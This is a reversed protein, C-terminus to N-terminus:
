EVEIKRRTCIDKISTVRCELVLSTDNISHSFSEEEIVAGDLESMCWKRYLDHAYILAESETLDVTKEKYFAYLIREIGFPLERGFIEPRELSSVIDYEGHKPMRLFGIRHGLVSLVSVRKEGTYRKETYELPVEFTLTEEVRAWVRGEARELRFATNVTNQVVGSILLQGKIVPDGAKVEPLGNEAEVRVVVGDSDSVINYPDHEPEPYRTVSRRQLEVHAVAGSINISCFSFELRDALFMAAVENVDVRSKLVGEYFGHRELTDLIERESVDGEGEIKVSWVFFTSLYFLFICIVAGILLGIRRKKRWFAGFVGEFRVRWEVGLSDFVRKASFYSLLSLEIKLEEGCREPAYFDLRSALLRTLLKEHSSCKLYVKLM